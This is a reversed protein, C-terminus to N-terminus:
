SKLLDAVSRTLHEIEGVLTSWAEEADDLNGARGISELRLAAAAPGKLGFVQVSGKLTHATKQVQSPNNNTIADRIRQMLKPCEETFVNVVAKMTEISGGTLALVQERDITEEESTTESGETEAGPAGTAMGEVAEYLQKARIPKPIYGDM